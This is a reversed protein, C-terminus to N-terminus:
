VFSLIAFAVSISVMKKRKKLHCIDLCSSVDSYKYKVCLWYGTIIWISPYSDVLIFRQVRFVVRKVIQLLVKSLIYFYIM